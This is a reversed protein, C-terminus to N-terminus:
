DLERELEELSVTEKKEYDARAEAVALKDDETLFSDSEVIHKKILAVDKRLAKIEEFVEKLQILEAM